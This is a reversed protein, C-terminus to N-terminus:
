LCGDNSLNIGLNEYLIKNFLIQVKSNKIPNGVLIIKNDSNLLFSHFRVDKPINPNDRRFYQATDIFISHDLQTSQIQNLIDAIQKGQTELIYYFKIGTPNKSELKSYGKWLELQRVYCQSCESTDAWVIMKLSCSDLLNQPPVSVNCVLMSDTNILITRQSMRIIQEEIRKGQTCSILALSCLAGIPISKFIYKM